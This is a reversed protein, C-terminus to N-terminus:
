TQERVSKKRLSLISRREEASLGIAYIIGLLLLSNLLVLFILGWLDDPLLRSLFYCLVADVLAVVAAPLVIRSLIERVDIAM